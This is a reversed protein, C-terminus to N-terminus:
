DGSQQSQGAEVLYRRREFPYTPLALRRRRERAYFGRWDLKVGALWLRGLAELMLGQDSGRGESGPLCNTAVMGKGPGAQQRVFSTLTLGPGVELFFSDESKLLTAIGEAFRVPERMQRVWYAPDCTQRAEVWKGTLNSIYRTKPEKLEVRGIEAAFKGLIPEMMKSHFAHSTQLQRCGVGSETLRRQLSDIAEGSGSVVCQSPANIAALSLGGNLWSGVEEASLAVSLMAGGPLRQMLRGRASVLALAEELSFVGALCGAVYEGVSHGIMASPEVGWEM